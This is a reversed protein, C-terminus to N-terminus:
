EPDNLMRNEENKMPFDELYYPIISKIFAQKNKLM